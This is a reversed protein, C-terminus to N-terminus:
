ISMFIYIYIYISTIKEAPPYAAKWFQNDIKHQLSNFLPQEDDLDFPNLTIFKEEGEKEWLHKLKSSSKINPFALLNNTSLKSRRKM